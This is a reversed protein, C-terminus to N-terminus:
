CVHATRVSELDERMERAADRVADQWQQTENREYAFIIGRSSNVVAGLGKSDFLGELEKAGGGQAGYGPVLLVSRCLLERVVGAEEPCTAGAVAGAASYGSAGILAEGWEHVKEAVATFMPKGGCDLDQFESSSPNSTRVLIFVGKSFQTCKDLFPQIADSGMYPNLTVADFPSHEGLHADAYAAATSGIDGRKIDGIVLLGKEAAQEATRFYVDWGRHGLAEYFAVQPKVAVADDAVADIIGRNFELVADAAKEPNSARRQLDAPLRGLRPDLGVVVCSKKENIKEALRDAFNISTKM